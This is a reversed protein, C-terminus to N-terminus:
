SRQKKKRVRWFSSVGFWAFTVAFCITVAVRGAGVQGARYKGYEKVSASTFSLAMVLFIVGVIELWLQHLVNAFSRATARAAKAFASVTRNRGAQQGAVRAVVALKRWTSVKVVIEIKVAQLSVIACSQRARGARCGLAATAEYAEAGAACPQRQV